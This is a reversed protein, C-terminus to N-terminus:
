EIETIIDLRLETLQEIQPTLFGKSKYENIIDSVKKGTTDKDLDRIAQIFEVNRKKLERILTVEKLTEERNNDSYIQESKIAIYLTYLIDYERKSIDTINQIQSVILTKEDLISKKEKLSSEINIKDSQLSALKNNSANLNEVCLTLNSDADNFRKLVNEYLTKYTDYQIIANQLDANVSNKSTNSIYLLITVYNIATQIDLIIFEIKTKANVLDNDNIYTLYEKFETDIKNYIELISTTTINALLENILTSINSNIATDISTSVNISNLIDNLNNNITNLDEKEKTYSDINSVILNYKNELTTKTETDKDYITKIKTLETQISAKNEEANTKEKTNNVIEAKTNTINETNKEYSINVTDYNSQATNMESTVKDLDTKNQKYINYVNSTNAKIQDPYTQKELQNAINYRALISAKETLLGISNIANRYEIFKNNIDNYIEIYKEYQAKLESITTYGAKLVCLESNKIEGSAYLKLYKIYSTIDSYIKIYNTININYVNYVIQNIYEEFLKTNLVTNETIINESSENDFSYFDNLNTKSEKLQAIIGTNDISGSKILNWLNSDNNIVITM